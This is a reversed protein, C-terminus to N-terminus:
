RRGFDVSVGEAVLTLEELNPPLEAGEKKMHAAQAESMKRKGLLGNVIVITGQALSTPMFFSYDKFSIRLNSDGDKLSMWCGKKSCVKHVPGVVQIKTDVLKGVLKPLDPMPIPRMIAFPKGYHVPLPMKDAGPSAILTILALTTSLVM